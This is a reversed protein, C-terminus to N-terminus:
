LRMGSYWSDRLDPARFGSGGAKAPLVSAVSVGAQGRMKKKIAPILGLAAHM